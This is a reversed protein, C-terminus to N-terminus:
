MSIILHDLGGIIGYYYVVHTEKFHPITHHFGINQPSFPILTSLLDQGNMLIWSYIDVMWLFNLFLFYKFACHLTLGALM